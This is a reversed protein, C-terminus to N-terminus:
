NATFGERGQTTRGVEFRYDMNREHFLYTRYNNMFTLM